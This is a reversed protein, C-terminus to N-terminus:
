ATLGEAQIARLVAPREVARAHFDTFEARSSVLLGVDRAWRVFVLLYADVVGFDDGLVWPGAKGQALRTAAHDLLLEARARSRAVVVAEAAPDAAFRKPRFLQAFTPHVMGSLFHLWEQARALPDSDLPLLRREPHSRALWQLIAAAETLIGWSTELVPVRQLPNLRTFEPLENDGRALSVLKRQYPEGIEELVIHVALSCAKPSYHLVNMPRIFRKAM